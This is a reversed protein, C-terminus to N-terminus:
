GQLFAVGAQITEIVWYLLDKYEDALEKQTWAETAHLQLLRVLAVQPWNGGYEQAIEALLKPATRNAKPASRNRALIRIAELRDVAERITVQGARLGTMLDAIRITVNM